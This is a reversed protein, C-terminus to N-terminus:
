AHLLPRVAFSLSYSCRLITWHLQGGFSFEVQVAFPLVYPLGGHEIFVDDIKSTAAKDFHWCGSHVTVIYKVWYNARIHHHSIRIYWLMQWQTQVTYGPCPERRQLTAPAANTRCASTLCSPYPLSSDFTLVSSIKFLHTQM